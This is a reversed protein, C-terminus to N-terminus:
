AKLNAFQDLGVLRRDEVMSDALEACRRIERKVGKAVPKDSDHELFELWNAAAKTAYQTNGFNWIPSRNKQNGRRGKWDDLYDVVEACALIERIAGLHAEPSYPEYEPSELVRICWDIKERWLEM